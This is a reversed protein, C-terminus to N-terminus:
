KTFIILFGGSHLIYLSYPSRGLTLGSPRTDFPPFYSFVLSSVRRKNEKIIKLVEGRARRKETKTEEKPGGNRRARYGIVRSSWLRVKEWLACRMALWSRPGFHDFSKKKLVKWWKWRRKPSTSFDNPFYLKTSIFSGRPGAPAASFLVIMLLFTASSWNARM